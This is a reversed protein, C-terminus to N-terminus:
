EFWVGLCCWIGRNETTKVVGVLIPDVIMVLPAALFLGALLLPYSAWEPVELREEIHEVERIVIHKSPKVPKTTILEQKALPYVEEAILFYDFHVNDSKLGECREYVKAPVPRPTQMDMLSMKWHWNGADFEVKGTPVDSVGMIPTNWKELVPQLEILKNRELTTVQSTPSNRYM